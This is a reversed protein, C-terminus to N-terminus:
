LPTPPTTPTLAQWTIADSMARFGNDNPHIHDGSDYVPLLRDPHEPDRLATDFDIVADFTESTRLATNAQQRVRELQPTHASHGGFPTITTGVARIGHAQARRALEELGRVLEAPDTQQPQKGMDNLGLQLVVTRVGTRSLVDRELRHLASPGNGPRDAPADLLIRNGSIGANLVSHHPTGPETRLRTALFDTWRRNAGVSSTIGDTLSDGLAVVAGTAQTSWVDVGTVHRWSTTEETYPAGTVDETHNGTALYSTQRAFPHYTAPGSPDPSYLTVLLDTAAPVRLRVPDSTVHQGPALTVTRHTGFTLPRMSGPAAAPASPAAALALSAHTITLPETGFVNSLRVRAASGGVSTHIVNRLSTDPYGSAARQGDEGGTPETAAPATAWTGVWQGSSAPAASGQGGGPRDDTSVRPLSSGFGAYLAGSVAVVLAFLGALLAYATGHSM